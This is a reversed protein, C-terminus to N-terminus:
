KKFRNHFSKSPVYSPMNSVGFDDGYIDTAFTSAYNKVGITKFLIYGCEGWVETVGFDFKESKLKKITVHDNLQASIYLKLHSKCKNHSNSLSQM